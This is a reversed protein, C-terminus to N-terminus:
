RTSRRGRTGARSTTRARPRTTASSRRPAAPDLPTSLNFDWEYYPVDPTMCVPWGYNAPARVVEVRGTGQPGRHTQPIQSDPSYDTVYAVGDSDVQVRFPNRFGMAYIEPRANPTGAAFLNGSPITYSGNDAM